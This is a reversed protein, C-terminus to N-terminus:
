MGALCVGKVQLYEEVGYKSGERGFGSAKVGGFPFVERSILGSNVGVMGYELHEAVRWARALDRTYVYAALGYETANAFALADAESAVRYVAAVPGFIEERAIRMAPTVNALVTPAYFLPGVESLRRGGCQVRAGQAVANAVLAEVKAVAAEDILPGVAIGPATGPGVTLAAVREALGSVFAEYIGEQVIFRNACVCTQGSNRYKSALAGTLAAELDADDFVIFPANGGLELSLRKLTGACAAMLRRGVETSGTFSLKRVVPSDTWVQAVEAPSATPVVNFVGPPLGAEHALAALALATLPTQEAPKVVVTCGVAIAPAVKRTIMAAPFNWPTIAACVGVPEKLALLRRDPATTPIVDGYVRRAEEAFWSVFSAAYRVEGQAESLPKGCELSILLALEEARALMLDHWRRLLSAREAALTARWTVFCRQAAAVAAQALAANGDTVEAVVRTTAPDRVPYRRGNDQWQGDIYAETRWLGLAECRRQIAEAEIMM